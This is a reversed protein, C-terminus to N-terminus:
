GREAAGPFQGNEDSIVIEVRRNQQMGESTDNGAVPYAEGLGAIRIRRTDISRGLLAGRVADARRESLARNLEDSGRSDTHGEILVNREPYETLFMALREVTTGAGTKLTAQGTDFLVDGLTLVLGRETQQAQLSALEEALARNREEAEAALRAADAAQQAAQEAAADAQQTREELLQRSREAEDQAALGRREAIEAERTRAELIIRNRNAEARGISDRATAEEIKQTSIDAYRQAVYAEHEVLELPEREEVAEDAAALARRAAALETAAVQGSFPSREAASVSARARELSDVRDPLSNCAGLAAGIAVVLATKTLVNM